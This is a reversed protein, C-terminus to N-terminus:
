PRRPHVPGEAHYGDRSDERGAARTPARHIAELGVDLPEAGLEGVRAGGLAEGGALDLACVRFELLEVRAGALEAGPDV